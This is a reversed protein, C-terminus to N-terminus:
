GKEPEGASAGEDQLAARINAEIQAHQAPNNPDLVTGNSTFWNNVPLNITVHIQAPTGASGVTIPQALTQRMSGNVSFSTTFPSGNYTGSIELTAGAPWGTPPTVPNELQVEVAGYTGANVQETQLLVDGGDVPVNVVRAAVPTDTANNQCDACGFQDGSGLSAQGFSASVASITLGASAATSSVTTTNAAAVHIDVPKKSAAATFADCGALTLASVLVAGLVPKWQM